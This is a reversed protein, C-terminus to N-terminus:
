FFNEWLEDVGHGRLVNNIGDLGPDLLEELCDADISTSKVAALIGGQLINHLILKETPYFTDDKVPSDM